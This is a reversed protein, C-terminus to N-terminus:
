GGSVGTQSGELGTENEGKQGLETKRDLLWKFVSPLHYIRNFKNIKVFPLGEETRLRDLTSSDIDLLKAVRDANAFDTIKSKQYVTM